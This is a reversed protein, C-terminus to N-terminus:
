GNSAGFKARIADAIEETVGDLLDQTECNYFKGMHESALKACEEVTVRRTHREIAEQDVLRSAALAEAEEARKAAIQYLGQYEKLSERTAALASWDHHFPSEQYKSLETTLRENEAEAAQLKARLEAVESTLKEVTTAWYQCDKCFM